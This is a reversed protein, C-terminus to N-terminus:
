LNRLMLIHIHIFHALANLDNVELRHTTETIKRLCFLFTASDNLDKEIKMRTWLNTDQRFTM